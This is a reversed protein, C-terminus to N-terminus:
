STLQLASNNFGKCIESRRESLLELNLKAIAEKYSKGPVLIKLARKQIQEIDENNALTLSFHWVPCAYELIPRIFSFFVKRLHNVSFGSRKLIRM